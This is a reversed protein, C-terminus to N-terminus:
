RNDQYSQIRRQALAVPRRHVPDVPYHAPNGDPQIFIFHHCSGQFVGAGLLEDSTLVNFFDHSHHSRVKNQIRQQQCQSLKSNITM